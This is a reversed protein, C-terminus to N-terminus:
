KVLEELDKLLAEGDYIFGRVYVGYVEENEPYFDSLDLDFVMNFTSPYEVLDNENIKVGYVSLFDNIDDVADSLQRYYGLETLNNWEDQMIVQYLKM